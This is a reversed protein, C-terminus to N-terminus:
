GAFEELSLRRRAISAADRALDNSGAGANTLWSLIAVRYTHSSTDPATTELTANIFTANDTTLPEIKVWDLANVESDRYLALVRAEGITSGSVSGVDTQSGTMHARYNFVLRSGSAKAAYTVATGTDILRRQSTTPATTNSGSFFTTGSPATVSGTSAVAATAAGVIVGASSAWAGAANFSKLVGEGRDFVTAGEYASLFSWGGAGDAIAVDTDHSAWAGSGSTGVIYATGAGPTGGPPTATEEEVAVGLPWRLKVPYVSGDAIGVAGVGDVWAGAESWHEYTAEDRVYIMMGPTPSVFAWGNGTLIAIDEANSAWDGTPAAPVRYVDGIAAGVPSQAKTRSLVAFEILRAAATKFRKNDDSVICTVGDDATISDAADYTFVQGDYIVATITLSLSGVDLNRLDDPDAISWPFGLAFAQRLALPTVSGTLPITQVPHNTM